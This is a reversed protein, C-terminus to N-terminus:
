RSLWFRSAIVRSDGIIAFLGNSVIFLIRYQIPWVCEIVLLKQLVQLTDVGGEIQRAVVSSSRVAM